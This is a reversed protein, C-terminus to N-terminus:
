KMEEKLIKNLKKITRHYKSLVTSLSLDILDAIERFKLGSVVHLVVINRDTNDIKEFLSKIFLKNSVDDAIKDNGSLNYVEDIDITEKNGNLKAYCLNKAITLVWALPKGRLQYLNANEYIRVYIDQFIDEADDYNKVISLIFAFVDKKTMEYFNILSDKDRNAMGVIYLELLSDNKKYEKKPVMNSYM